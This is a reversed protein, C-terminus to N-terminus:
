RGEELVCVLNQQLCPGSTAHALARRKGADRIQRAAEAIRVLGTAMIPNAALPGGSPNIAVEPGLGLAATLVPEEHTFASQLEAVDIPGGEAVGAAKAARAASTSVRLDRVGPQHAEAVHAFGTIWVPRDTLERAKEGRALVVACAGDTIPPLDHRRLPDRVYEGALLADVDFEGSVQAHPNAVADRRTRAAITAMQRETVLGADLLVRAQLAAMSVADAGLPALYYPDMEMPYITAPDATSSRGSGTALAVDLDGLQLRVWAEYLAWAGDMEVHSDRKPPWAGIANINQVFSFAQGAVYDCSGACTFDVDARSIGAHATADTIVDLLLQAETKDTRREMPSVSWGIIAVPETAAM